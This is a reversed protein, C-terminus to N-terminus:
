LLYIYIIIGLLLAHCDCAKIGTYLAAKSEKAIVLRQLAQYDTEMARALTEMDKALQDSAGMGESCVLYMIANYVPDVCAGMYTRIGVM